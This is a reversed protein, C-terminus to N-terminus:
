HENLSLAIRIKHLKQPELSHNGFQNKYGCDCDTSTPSFSFFLTVDNTEKWKTIQEIVTPLLSPVNSFKRNTTVWVHVDHLIYSLVTCKVCVCVVSVMKLWANTSFMSRKEDIDVHTITLTLNVRTTNFHNAPRAYKDYAVLLDKKLKDTWTANWVPKAAALCMCLSLYVFLFWHLQFISFLIAHLECSLCWTLLITYKSQITYLAYPSLYVNSMSCDEKMTM